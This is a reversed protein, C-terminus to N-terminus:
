LQIKEIENRLDDITRHSYTTQEVDGQLAHGMLMHKATNDVKSRDCLWSFTHRTDHPTHKTGEISTEIGLSVLTNYFNKRYLGDTTTLWTNGNYKKILDYIASHIPVIRNKGASTKVGGQLYRNDLDINMNKWASIRFGTYIMILITDVYPMDKNKWLIKIEEESFPVGKEDDDAINIKVFQAYNKDALDNAGAFDYMQSFLNRILELSSHKLTCNDIVHQLDLTKLDRFIRGHLASCNRFASKTSNMSSKSYKEKGHVYQADYYLEYLHEFTLTAADLDYPNNNYDALAQLAEKRTAFCGISHRKWEMAGTDMNVIREAASRVLFPKRRNGSLKTISGYGNPNRM